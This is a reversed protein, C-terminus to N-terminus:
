GWFAPAPSSVVGDAYRLGDPWDEAQLLPGDLDVYACQQALIMAPAMSLSSGGMCGVMLAFGQARAARALSLAATLGGAKDLKINIVQFRGRARALDEPGNILEDACLRVPCAYAELGPEDGVRLPQEILVAGLGALRPAFRQLDSVTWSQNPDVILASRPAGERVAEVATISDAGDVKVKLLPFNRYAAAIDRYAELSRIGITFATQVARPTCGAAEFATRGSQKAELDWLAADIACRAGGAPLRTLLEDRSIGAEIAPRVAEIEALMSEPTEGAYTVGCAEGRGRRGAEDTLSAVLTVAESRAGRSTAFPEKLPWRRIHLDLTWAM